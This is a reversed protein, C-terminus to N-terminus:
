KNFSEVADKESDYSRIVKDMKTLSLIDKVKFSPSAMRLDGGHKKASTYCEVLVGFGSSDMFDVKSCNLVIRNKGDELICRLSDRLEGSGEDITVRGSVQVVATAGSLKSKIKAM